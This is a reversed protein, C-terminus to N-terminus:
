GGQGAKPPNARLWDSFDEFEPRSSLVTVADQSIGLERCLNVAFFVTTVVGSPEGTDPARVAYRGSDAIRKWQGPALPVRVTPNLWPVTDFVEASTLPGADWTARISEPSYLAAAAPDLARLSELRLALIANRDKPASLVTIARNAAHIPEALPALAQEIAPDPAITNRSLEILQTKLVRWGGPGGRKLDARALTYGRNERRINESVQVPWAGLAATGWADTRRASYIRHAAILDVGLGRLVGAFPPPEGESEFKFWSFIVCADAAGLSRLAAAYDRVPLVAGRRNQYYAPFRLPERAPDLDGYFNAALVVPARPHDFAAAAPAGPFAPEGGPYQFPCLVRAKLGQVRSPDLSADLNGLVVADYQLENFLAAMNRSGTAQAAFSGQLSDGSDFLFVRAGSAAADARVQKVYAALYPYYQLPAIGKLGPPYANGLMRGTHMVILDPKGGGSCAALLLAGAGLVASGAWFRGGIAGGMVFAVIRWGSGAALAFHGAARTEAATAAM